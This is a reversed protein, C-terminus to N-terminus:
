SSAAHPTTAAIAFADSSSDGPSVGAGFSAASPSAVHPTTAVIAFADSSSDGPSGTTCSSSATWACAVHPTTAAIAFAESSSDGASVGASFSATWSSAVQSTPAAVAFAHSSSDGPSVSADFSAAPSSPPTYGPITPGKLKSSGNLLTMVVEDISPRSKSARQTCRLGIQICVEVQERDEATMSALTPDMADLSRGKDYSKRIWEILSECDFDPPSFNSNKKGTVLELMVVGFSYVDAKVSLKGNVGYEPAVYGPTGAALTSIHTQDEEGYLHAMGFDAIKPCWKKDLLINSAKIDRHIIIIPSYEHLYQLGCAVGTIVNYRRKWDLESRKREDSLVKDLSGNVVYEYVLLLESGQACHGWLKVINRHQIKALIKAENMFQGKGQKSADSLRKVAIVTGNELTGMYVPGFGGEGVKNDSHFDRTALALTELAFQKPLQSAIEELDKKHSDEQSLCPQKGEQSLCPQKGEQSLCPLRGVFKKFWRKM